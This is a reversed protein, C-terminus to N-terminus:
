KERGQTDAGVGDGGLQLSELAGHPAVHADVHLRARLDIQLQADARQGFFHDDGAAGLQQLRLDASM